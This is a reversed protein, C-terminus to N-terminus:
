INWINTSWLRSDIQQGHISKMKIRQGLKKVSTIISWYNNLKMSVGYDMFKVHVKALNPHHEQWINKNGIIIIDDLFAMLFPLRTYFYLKLHMNISFIQSLRVHSNSNAPQQSTFTLKFAYINNNVPPMHFRHGYCLFHLWVECYKLYANIHENKTFRGQNIKTVDIFHLKEWCCILCVPGWSM